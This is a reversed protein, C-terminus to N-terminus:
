RLRELEQAAQRKYFRDNYETAEGNLVLQYEARAKEREGVDVYVRALDLHHTLREPEAEVAREMYRVANAWNAEGFVQGGLFTRAILRSIGSLRMVEANWVGMVHLAGPQDADLELARLAHSRVEGAYRIRDRTGLTLAVRGLARALHFHGEADDPQVEVARRAYEEGKRFYEARQTEDQEFEGLGVAERAAKWLGEYGQPDAAVAQEYYALAHDPEMGAHEADGLAIYEAASQAGALPAALFLLLTAARLM